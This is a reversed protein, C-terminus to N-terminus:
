YGRKRRMGRMSEAAPMAGQMGPMAGQLGLRQPPLQVTSPGGPALGSGPVGGGPTAPLGALKPGSMDSMPMQASGLGMLGANLPNGAQVQQQMLATTVDDRPDYQQYAM